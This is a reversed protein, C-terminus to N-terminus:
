RAEHTKREDSVYQGYSSFTQRHGDFKIKKSTSMNAERTSSGESCFQFGFDCACAYAYSFYSFTWM